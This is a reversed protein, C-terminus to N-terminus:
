LNSIPYVRNEPVNNWSHLLIVEGWYVVLTFICMQNSTGVFSMAAAVLLLWYDHVCPHFVILEVMILTDRSQSMRHVLMLVLKGRRELVSLTATMSFLSNIISTHSKHNQCVLHYISSELSSLLWLTWSVWTCVIKAPHNQKECWSWILSQYQCQSRCRPRISVAALNLRVTTPWPHCSVRIFKWFLCSKHICGYPLWQLDLSPVLLSVISYPIPLYSPLISLSLGFRLYQLVMSPYSLLHLASFTFYWPM